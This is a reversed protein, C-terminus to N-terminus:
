LASVAMMVPKTCKVVRERVVVVEVVSAMVWGQLLEVSRWTLLEQLAM